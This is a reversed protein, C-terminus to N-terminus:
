HSQPRYARLFMAVCDELYARIEAPDVPDLNFQATLQSEAKLMCLFQWAAHKPNEINLRGLENQAELYDAVAKVTQKPGREYYIRGLEPHTEASACCVAHVRVAERSNILDLFRTAMEPLMIEPPAEPDISEPDIGSQKCKTSVAIGFLTEKCGFNSYVTQKSVGAKSAIDDVSTGDFGHDTFLEMAAAMIKKRKEESRPRGRSKIATDTNKLTTSM